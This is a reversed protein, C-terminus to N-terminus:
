DWKLGVFESDCAPCYYNKGLKICDSGCLFCENLIKIPIYNNILEM